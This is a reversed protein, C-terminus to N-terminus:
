FPTPPARHQNHSITLIKKRWMRLITENVAKPDYSRANGSHSRTAQFSPTNLPYAVDERTGRDTCLANKRKQNLFLTLCYM